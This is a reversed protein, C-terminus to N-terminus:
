GGSSSTNNDESGSSNSGGSNSGTQGSQQTSSKGGATQPMSESVAQKIADEFKVKFSPTQMSDTMIKMLQTRFEPTQLLDQLNKTFEPSKLLVLMEKQYEPDKMLQKNAQMLEPQIAKAVTSAFQPDKAQQALFSQSSKSDITNQVAKAVDTESVAMQQKFTPDKLIDQLATKGEASHLIDIVMQKTAGYDQQSAGSVDAGASTNAGCGVGLVLLLSALPWVSRSPKM